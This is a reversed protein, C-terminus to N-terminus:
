EDFASTPVRAVNEVGRPLRRCPVAAAKSLVRSGHSSTLQDGGSGEQQEKRSTHV